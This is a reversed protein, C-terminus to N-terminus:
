LPDFRSLRFSGDLYYDGTNFRYTTCQVSRLYEGVSQVVLDEPRTKLSPHQTEDKTEKPNMESTKTCVKNIIKSVNTPTSPHIM